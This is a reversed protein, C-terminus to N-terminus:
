TQVKPACVHVLETRAHCDLCTGGYHTVMNGSRDPNFMPLAPMEPHSLSIVLKRPQAQPMEGVEGFMNWAGSDRHSGVVQCYIAMDDPLDALAARLTGVMGFPVPPLPLADSM